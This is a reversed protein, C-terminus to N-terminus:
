SPRSDKRGAFVKVAGAQFPSLANTISLPNSFTPPGSPVTAAAPGVAAGLILALCALGLFPVRAHSRSPALPVERRHEGEPQGPVRRRLPNGWRRATVRMPRPRIRCSEHWAGPRGAISALRRGDPRCTGRQPSHAVHRPSGTVHRTHFP